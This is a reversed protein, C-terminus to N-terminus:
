PKRGVPEALLTAADFGLRLAGWHRGGIWVPVDLETMIEGTDRVYTQLLFRQQNRAARLGAPDNFIRQHRSNVLDTARDGTPPKSYWSNHSPGYGNGDVLLCFKGGPTAKVLADYRPQFVPGFREAYRTLYKQPDTGAVPQYRQDFVEVGEAALAAIGAAMEDRAALLRSLAADLPGQGLVFRGALQQVEDAVGSLDRTAAASRQMREAITRSDAHIHAVRQNIEGNTEAFEDVHGAIGGLRQSSSEFDVVLKGFHGAAREVSARTIGASRSISLTRAHTTSVDGLMADINASIDETAGRVKEALKRVEDAVVAFGRGAEGARAAEIAANLALLNTQEAIEKILDVVQKISASRGNLGDVVRSFEGIEAGIAHIHTSVEGLEAHATRAVELNQTTTAAIQRTEAAVEGLRGTAADSAALVAEAFRSQQEASATSDTINRLSRASEVAIRVTLGQVEALTQRQRALLRNCAAALQGIEDRSDIRLDRSLDGEGRAMEDIAERMRRLPLAIRRNYYWVMAGIFVASAALLLTAEAHGFLPWLLAAEIALLAFLVAFKRGLTGFAAAEPSDHFARFTSM